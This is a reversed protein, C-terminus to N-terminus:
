LSIPATEKDYPSQKLNFHKRFIIILVVGVTICADAINFIPSFFSFENGGIGPIWMPFHGSFLPFSLMDVVRGYLFGAYGKEVFIGSVHFNSEEFILGYFASDIINGMAGALILTVSILALDSAGKKAIDYLYWGIVGVAVIRFISLILKGTDGGFEMGLAMGPNETFHIKFWNGFVSFEEGMMM